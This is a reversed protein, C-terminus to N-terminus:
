VVFSGPLPVPRPREVNAMLLHPGIAMTVGAHRTITKASLTVPKMRRDRVCPAARSRGAPAADRAKLAGALDSRATRIAPILGFLFVSISAM